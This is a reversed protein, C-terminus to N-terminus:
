VLLQSDTKRSSRLIKVNFIMSILKVMESLGLFFYFAIGSWFCRVQEYWFIDPGRSSNDLRKMLQQADQFTQKQYAFATNDFIRLSHLHLSGLTATKKDKCDIEILRVRVDPHVVGWGVHKRGVCHCFDGLTRYIEIELPETRRQSRNIEKAFSEATENDVSPDSYFVAHSIASAHQALFYQAHAGGLSYGALCIKENGARFHPDSMLTQFEGVAAKWGMEGVNSQVDNLYAEVADESSLALPTGRFAVLPKLTSNSTAPRLAYAVLGDGTGIKKFVKYYDIRGDQGPAPILQGEILERNVTAKSFRELWAPFTLRGIDSSLLQKEKDMLLKNHCFHATFTSPSGTIRMPDQYGGVIPFPQVVRMQATLQESTLTSIKQPFRKKIDGTLIQSAGVSISEVHEPRLPEGQAQMQNFNLQYRHGIWNLKEEGLTDVLSARFIKWTERNLEKDEASFSSPLAFQRVNMERESALLYKANSPTYARNAAEVFHNIRLLSSM